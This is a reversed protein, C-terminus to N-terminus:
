LLAGEELTVAFMYSSPTEYIPDIPNSVFEHGSKNVEELTVGTRKMM